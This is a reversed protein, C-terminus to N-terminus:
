TVNQENDQDNNEQTEPLSLKAKLVDIFPPIVLVDETIRGSSRLEGLTNCLSSMDIIGDNVVDDSQPQIIILDKTLTMQNFKMESFTLTKDVDINEIVYNYEANRLEETLVTLMNLMKGYHEYQTITENADVTKAEEKLVDKIQNIKEFPNM